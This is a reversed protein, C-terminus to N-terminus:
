RVGIEDSPLPADLDAGAQDDAEDDAQDDTVGHDPDTARALLVM